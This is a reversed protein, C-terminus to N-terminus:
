KKNELRGSLFKDVGTILLVILIDKVVSLIKSYLIFFRNM